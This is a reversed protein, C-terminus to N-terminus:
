VDTHVAVVLAAVERGVELRAPDRPEAPQFAVFEEALHVLIPYLVIEIQAVDRLM